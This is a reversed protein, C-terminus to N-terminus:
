IKIREKGDMLIAQTINILKGSPIERGEVESCAFQKKEFLPCFLKRLFLSIM